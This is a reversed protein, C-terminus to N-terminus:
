REWEQWSPDISTFPRFTEPHLEPSINEMLEADDLFHRAQEAFDFVAVTAKRGDTLDAVLMEPKLADFDL